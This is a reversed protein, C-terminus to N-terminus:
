GKELHNEIEDNITEIAYSAKKYLVKSFLKEDIAKSPELNNLISKEVFKALVNVNVM